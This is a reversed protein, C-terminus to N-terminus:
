SGAGIKGKKTKEKAGKAQSKSGPREDNKKKKKEEEDEKPESPCKNRNNYEGIPICKVKAKTADSVDSTPDCPCDGAINANTACRTSDSYECECYGTLFCNHDDRHFIDRVFISYGTDLHSPFATAHTITLALLCAITELFYPKM